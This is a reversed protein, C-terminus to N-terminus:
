VILKISCCSCSNISTKSPGILSVFENKAVSLNFGDLVTLPGAASEFTIDLDRVEVAADM